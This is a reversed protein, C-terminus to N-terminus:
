LNKCIQKPQPNQRIKNGIYVRPIYARNTTACQPWTYIVSYQSGVAEKGKGKLGKLTKCRPRQSITAIWWSAAGGLNCPKSSDGIFRIKQIESKEWIQIKHVHPLQEWSCKLIEINVNQFTLLKSVHRVHRSFIWLNQRNWLRGARHTQTRAAQASRRGRSFVHGKNQFM